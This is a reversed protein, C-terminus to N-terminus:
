YESNKNKTTQAFRLFNPICIEMLFVTLHSMQFLAMMVVRIVQMLFFGLYTYIYM